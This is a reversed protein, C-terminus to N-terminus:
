FYRWGQFYPNPNRRQVPRKPAYHGFTPPNKKGFIAEMLKAFFGKKADQLELMMQQQFVQQEDQQQEMQAQMAAREDAAAQREALLMAEMREQEALAAQREEALALERAAIEEERALLAPSPGPSGTHASKNKKGRLARSVNSSYDEAKAVQKGSRAVQKGTKELMKSFFGGFGQPHEHSSSTNRIYAMSIM